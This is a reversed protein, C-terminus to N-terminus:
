SDYQLQLQYHAKDQVQKDVQQQNSKQVPHDM